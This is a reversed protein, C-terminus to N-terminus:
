AAYRREVSCDPRPATVSNRRADFAGNVWRTITQESVSFANAAETISGFTRGKIHWTFTGRRNRGQTKDTAWRTNSPAYGLSADIRDLSTGEPREGMDHLFIAFDSWEPCISIGRGGYQPYDKDTEVLCRRRMAIWSSYERTERGGHKTAQQSSVERALCGCSKTAGCKVRSFAVATEAGCDCRWLSLIHGDPTRGHNREVLTLRNFTTTM